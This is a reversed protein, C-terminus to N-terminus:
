RELAGEAVLEDVALWPDALPARRARSSRAAHNRGRVQARYALFEFGQYQGAGRSRRLLAVVPGLQQWYYAVLRGFSDLFLEEKIFGHQVLTGARNFWNCLAMEPHAGPDVYGRGSLELRYAEDRLRDPLRTAVYNLAAQLEPSRFDHEVALVAELENAARLHRLQVIAALVSAGFIVLTVVSAIANVAALTM